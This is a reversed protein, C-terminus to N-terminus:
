SDQTYTGWAQDESGECATNQPIWWEMGTCKDCHQTNGPYICMELLYSITPYTCAFCQISVPLTATSLPFIYLLPFLTSLISAREDIGRMINGKSSSCQEGKREWMLINKALTKFIGCTVCWVYMPEWGDADMSIKGLGAWANTQSKNNRARIQTQWFIDKEDPHTREMKNM